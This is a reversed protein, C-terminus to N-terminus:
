GGGDRDGEEEIKEERLTAKCGKIKKTKKRARRVIVDDQIRVGRAFPCRRSEGRKGKVRDGGGRGRRRVIVSFHVL